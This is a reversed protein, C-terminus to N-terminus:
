AGLTKQIIVTGHVSVDTDARDLEAKGRKADQQAQLGLCVTRTQREGAQSHGGSV